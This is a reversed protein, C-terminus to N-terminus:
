GSVRLLLQDIGLEAIGVAYGAGHHFIVRDVDRLFTSLLARVALRRDSGVIIPRDFVAVLVHRLIALGRLKRPDGRVAAFRQKRERGVLIGRKRDIGFRVLRIETTAANACRRKV